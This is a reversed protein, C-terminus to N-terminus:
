MQSFEAKRAFYLETQTATLYPILFLSGYGCTLFVLAWWGIFSLELFFMHLKQGKSMAISKKLAERFGLSPDDILLFSTFMYAYYKNMIIIAYLIFGVLYIGTLIMLVAIESNGFSTRRIDLSFIFVFAAASSLIIPIAGILAWLFTWLTKWAMGRVMRWYTNKRFAMFLPDVRKGEGGERIDFYWKQYGISLPFTIFFVVAFIGAYMLLIMAMFILTFLALQPFFSAPIGRSTISGSTEQLSSGEMFLTAFSGFIQFVFTFIGSVISSATGVLLTYVLTWLVAWWYKGTLALRAKARLDDCTWM